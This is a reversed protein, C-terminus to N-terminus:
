HLINCLVAECVSVAFRQVIREWSVRANETAPLVQGEAYKHKGISIEKGRKVRWEAQGKSDTALELADLFSEPYNSPRLSTIAGAKPERKDLIKAFKAHRQLVKEISEKDMMRESMRVVHFTLNDVLEKAQTNKLKQQLEEVQSLFDDLKRSDEM